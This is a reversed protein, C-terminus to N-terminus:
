SQGQAVREYVDCYFELTVKVILSPTPDASRLSAVALHILPKSAPNGAVSGTTNEMDVAMQQKTWGFLTHMPFYQKISTKQSGTDNLSRTLGMAKEAVQAPTNANITRTDGPNTVLMGLSVGDDSPDTADIKVLVGNVKYRRYIAMMQDFGYPQHGVGTSDPDFCGNLNLVQEAGYLASGAGAGSLTYNETYSFKVKRRMPFPDSQIFNKFPGFSKKKRIVKTVKNTKRTYSKKNGPM